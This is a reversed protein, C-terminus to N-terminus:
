VVCEDELADGDFFNEERRCCFRGVDNDAEMAKVTGSVRGAGCGAEEAMVAGEDPGDVGGVPLAERDCAGVDGANGEADGGLVVPSGDVDANLGSGCGVTRAGGQTRAKVLRLPVGQPHGGGTHAGEIDLRVPVGRRARRLWGYPCGKHTGEGTYIMDDDMVYPCGKHTGEGTYIM